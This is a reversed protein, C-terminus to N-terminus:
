RERRLALLSTARRVIAADVLKGDVSTAGGEAAEAAHIIREATELEGDDPTFASNIAGLQRPHIASKGFFGLARARALAASLVEADTLDTTAGDVPAEIGAARSALAVLARPVLTTLTDDGRGGLDAVLDAQGLVLRAVRPDSAAIEEASLVGRASEITPYLRVTGPRMGLASERHAIAAAVQRVAEADEVKPLRIAEVLPHVAVEVDDDAFGGGARNIRVHVAPSRDTQGEADLEALLRDVEARAADKHDPAVADELDLVVADAASALAKRMVTPNSVPAFLYSRHAKPIAPSRDAFSM